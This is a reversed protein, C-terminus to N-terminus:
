VGAITGIAFGVLVRQLSILTNHALDGSTALDRLTDFVQQPPPLIQPAIWGRTCGVSWLTYLVAPLLWPALLWAVARVRRQANAASGAFGASEGAQAPGDLEPTTTRLWLTPWQGRVNSM